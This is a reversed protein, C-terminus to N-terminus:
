PRGQAPTSIMKLLPEAYVSGISRLLRYRELAKDPERERLRHRGLPWVDGAARLFALLLGAAAAHWFVSELHHPGPALGFLTVDLLHSVWTVPHWNALHLTTFAWRVSAVSLGGRIFRNGTIFKDDDFPLFPHGSVPWYVTATLGALLLALIWPAVAPSSPSRSDTGGASM